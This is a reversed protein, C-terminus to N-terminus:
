CIRYEKLVDDIKSYLSSDKCRQDARFQKMQSHAELLEGVPDEVEKEYEAISVQLVARRAIMAKMKDNYM